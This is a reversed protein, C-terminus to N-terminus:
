HNEAITFLIKYIVHIIVLVYHQLLAEIESTIYITIIGCASYFAIYVVVALKRFPCLMVPVSTIAVGLIFCKFVKLIYINIFYIRKDIVRCYHKM